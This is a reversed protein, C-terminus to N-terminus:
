DIFELGCFMCNRCLVYMVFVISSSKEFPFTDFSTPKLLRRALYGIGSIGTARSAFASLGVSTPAIEKIRGMIIFLSKCENM